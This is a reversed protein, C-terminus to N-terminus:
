IMVEPSQVLVDPEEEVGGEGGLSLMSAPQLEDDGKSLM